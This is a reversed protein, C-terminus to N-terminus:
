SEAEPQRDYLQQREKRNLSLHDLGNYKLKNRLNLVHNSTLGSRRDLNIGNEKLAQDLLGAFKEDTLARPKDGQAELELARRLAWLQLAEPLDGFSWDAREEPLERRGQGDVLLLRLSFPLGDPLAAFKGAYRGLVRDNPNFSYDKVEVDTSGRVALRTLLLLRDLLPTKADLLREWDTGGLLDRAARFRNEVFQRLEELSEALDASPPRAHRARVEEGDRELRFLVVPPRSGIVDRLTPGSPEEAEEDPAVTAAEDEGDPHDDGELDDAQLERTDAAQGLGPSVGSRHDLDPDDYGDFDERRRESCQRGLTRRRKRDGPRGRDSTPLRTM